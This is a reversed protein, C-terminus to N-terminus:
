ANTAPCYFLNSTSEKQMPQIGDRTIWYSLCELESRGFFSKPANVKLGAEQLRTLIIDLKDLHDEWSGSTIALLDDIYTRVYELGSLLESMKEQFTDPSNKLGMPLRQYKYKGWPLVITCLQKSYPSLEIYYYGM